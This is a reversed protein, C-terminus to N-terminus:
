RSPRNRPALTHLLWGTPAAIANLTYYLLRLPVVGIAFWPGRMRAFWRILPLNGALVVALCAASVLLWAPSRGIAGIGVAVAALGTLLTYLKEM